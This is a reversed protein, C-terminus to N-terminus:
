DARRRAITAQMDRMLADFGQRDLLSQYESRRMGVLSVTKPSFVDVVRWLGDADQTVRELLYDRRVDVGTGARDLLTKVLLGDGPAQEEGLYDFRAGRDRRWSHATASVHFETYVLIWREQQEATLGAFSAGLSARAMAPVDFIELVAARVEAERGAQGLQQSREAVDLLVANLREVQQRAEAAGPISPEPQLTPSPRETPAACAGLALAGLAAM